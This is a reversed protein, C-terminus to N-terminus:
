RMLKMELSWPHRVTKVLDECHQKLMVLTDKDRQEREDKIMQEWAKRGDKLTKLEAQLSEINKVLLQITKTTGADTKPVPDPKSKLSEVQQKLQAIESRDKEMLAMQEQAITPEPGSIEETPQPPPIEDPPPPVVGDRDMDDSDRRKRKLGRIVGDVDRLDEVVKWRGNGMRAIEMEDQVKSNVLDELDGCRTELNEKLSEVTQLRSLMDELLIRARSRKGGGGEEGEEGDATTSTLPKEKEKGKRSTPLPPPPVEDMRRELVRMRNRVEEIEARSLEEEKEMEKVPSRAQSQLKSQVLTRKILEDFTDHLERMKEGLDMEAARLRNQADAFSSPPIGSEPIPFSEMRKVHQSALAHISTSILTAHMTRTMLRAWMGIDINVYRLFSELALTVERGRSVVVGRYRERSLSRRRPSPSRSWRSSEVPPPVRRNREHEWEGLGPDAGPSQSRIEGHEFEQDSQRFNYAYPEYRERDM